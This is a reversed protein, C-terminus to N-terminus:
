DKGLILDVAWCGRWHPGIPVWGLTEIDCDCFFKDFHDWNEYGLRRTRENGLCRTRGKLHMLMEVNGCGAEELADAVLSLRFPDLTGDPLRTDYAAQALSLVTPTVRFQHTVNVGDARGIVGAANRMWPRFPNGVIDRIIDPGAEVSRETSPAYRDLFLKAYRVAPWDDNEFSGIEDCDWETWGGVMRAWSYGGTARRAACAIKVVKRQSICDFGQHDTNQTVLDLMRVPDACTLWESETM